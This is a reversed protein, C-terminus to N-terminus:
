QESFYLIDTVSHRLDLSPIDEMRFDIDLLNIESQNIESEM